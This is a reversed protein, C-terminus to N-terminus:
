PRRKRPLVVAILIKVIRNRLETLHDVLTMETSTAGPAPSPASVPPDAQPDPARSVPLGADRVADADAM